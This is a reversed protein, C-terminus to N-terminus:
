KNYLKMCCPIAEPGCSGSNSRRVETLDPLAITAEEEKALCDIPRILSLNPEQASTEVIEAASTEPGVVEISSDDSETSEDNGLVISGDDTSDSDRVTTLTVDDAMYM